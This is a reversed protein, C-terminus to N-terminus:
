FSGSLAAEVPVYPGGVRGAIAQDNVQTTQGGAIGVGLRLYLRETLTFEAEIGAGAYWSLSNGRFRTDGSPTWMAGGLLTAGLRVPGARLCPGFAGAAMAGGGVNPAGTVGMTGRAVMCAGDSDVHGWVYGVSPGFSVYPAVPGTPALLSFQGGVRWRRANVRSALGAVQGPLSALEPNALRDHEVRCRCNWDTNACQSTVPCYVNRPARFSPVEEEIEHLLNSMDTVNRRQTEYDTRFEACRDGIPRSIDGGCVNNLVGEFLARGVYEEAAGPGRACGVTMSRSTGMVRVPISGEACVCRRARGQGEWHAGWNEDCNIRSANSAVLVNIETMVDREVNPNTGTQGRVWNMYPRDIRLQGRHCRQQLTLREAETPARFDDQTAMDARITNWTEQCGPTSPPAVRGTLDQASAISSAIEIETDEGPKNLNINIGSLFITLAVMAGLMWSRFQAKIQM